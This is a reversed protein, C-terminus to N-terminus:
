KLKGLCPTNNEEEADQARSWVVDSNGYIADLMEM